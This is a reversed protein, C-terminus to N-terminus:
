WWGVVQATTGPGLKTPRFPLIAGAKLSYVVSTGESDIIEVDGDSAVYLARPVPNLDDGSPTLTAHLTAPDSGHQKIM